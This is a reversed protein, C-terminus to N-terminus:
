GKAKPDEGMKEAGKNKRDRWWQLFERWVLLSVLVAYAVVSYPILVNEIFFDATHKSM